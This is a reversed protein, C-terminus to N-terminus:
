GGLGLIRAIFSAMQDRLVPEFPCYELPNVACGNTTGDRYLEEAEAAYFETLNVDAFLGEPDPLIGAKFAAILFVAMEARTVIEDPRYTGDPYGSAIGLSEITEVYPTYWEGAPVDPFTGRFAVFEEIGLARLLFAALEARTIPRSPCYYLGDVTCGVTIEATAILEINAQHINGDTDLFSITTGLVQTTGGSSGGGGSGGGGSGGSTFAATFSAASAPAIIDHGQTGGDSWSEFTWTEGGQNQPSPAGITVISNIIATEVHPAEEM